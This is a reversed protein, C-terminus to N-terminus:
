PNIIEKYETNSFETVVVPICHNAILNYVVEKSPHIRHAGASIPCVLGQLLNDVFNYHSGHHPIQVCGLLHWYKQYINQPNCLNMDSDGMYVCGPKDNVMLNLTGNFACFERQQIQFVNDDKPGSYVLMSNENTGSGNQGKCINEYAQKLNRYKSSNLNSFVGKIYRICHKLKYVSLNNQKINQQLVASRNSYDYNYPVFFWQNGSFSIKTGSKLILPTNTRNISDVSLEESDDAIESSVFIIETDDGFVSKLVSRVFQACSNQSGLLLYQNRLFMLPLIIRKFKVKQKILESIGSVHDFDLHSIFLIDIEKNQKAFNKLLTTARASILGKRGVVGCDYIINFTRGNGLEHSESYFAGQGIPHFVRTIVSLGM